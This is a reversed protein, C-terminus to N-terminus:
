FNYVYLDMGSGLQYQPHLDCLFMGSLDYLNM